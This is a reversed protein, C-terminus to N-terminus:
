KRLEYAKILLNKITDKKKTIEDENLKIRYKGWRKDYDLIDLESSSIIEDYEESEPLGVELRLSNKQPRCIAFNCAKGDVWFGIYYKNYSQEATPIFERVIELIRDALKVTKVTGRQNEWYNRDTAEKTEEDEDLYGLRVTDLVKTFHLGIGEPTEIASVQIAMIPIFGNFLGIVNLFRSTIDEAIIVATHDYQPYRRREIDWYEITRIIHSEDCQGLQIEVEFRGHGDAEQLLLDLRGAGPHIRERDKLIVDGVGLISPDSAIVEQLWAENYQSNSKLNIKNLKVHKMNEEM